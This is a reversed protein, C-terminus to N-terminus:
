AAIRLEDAMAVARIAIVTVDDPQHLSGDGQHLHAELEHVAASLDSKGATALHERMLDEISLKLPEAAAELGDSHILLTQGPLFEFTVSSFDAEDFVGLMPGPTEGLLIQGSRSTIRLPYPHGAGALTVRRAKPDIVGCVATAYKHSYGPHRVLEENLRALMQSPDTHGARASAAMARTIAMTLLAAPVGHGVADALFFALTGDPQPVLDFIDGSVYACPRFAIAIELGPIEPAVRPIFERQVVAALEMEQQFHDLERTLARTTATALKLDMAMHRITAQRQALTCVISALTSPATTISEILVGCEGLERALAEARPSLMLAASHTEAFLTSLQAIDTIPAHEDCLCIWVSDLDPTLEERTIIRCRPSEGPRPWHELLQSGLRAAAGALHTPAVFTVAVTRM